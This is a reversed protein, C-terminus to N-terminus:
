YLENSEVVDVIRVEEIELRKNFLIIFIERINCEYDEKIQKYIFDKLCSEGKKFRVGNPIISYVEGKKTRYVINRNSMEEIIIGYQDRLVLEVSDKANFAM